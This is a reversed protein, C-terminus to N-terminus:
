KVTVEVSAEAGGYSCTVTATGAADAFVSLMGGGSMPDWGSADLWAGPWGGVSGTAVSSNSSACTLGAPATFVKAGVVGLAYAVEVVTGPALTVSPEEFALRDVESGSVVPIKTTTSAAGSSVTLAGDGLGVTAFEIDGDKISTMTLAGEATASFTAGELTMGSADFATAVTELNSYPLTAMGTPWDLTVSAAPAVRITAQVIAGHNSDFGTIVATGEKKGAVEVQGSASADSTSFVSVVALVSPDSSTASAPALARGLHYVTLDAVGGVAVAHDNGDPFSM